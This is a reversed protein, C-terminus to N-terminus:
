RQRFDERACPIVADNTVIWDMKADREDSPIREAAQCAYAVGIREIWPSSTLFRDYYGAGYGLRNGETDFALMPVVAAEVERVDAALEHGIPEPVRFTSEVLVGPDDLLSLRLTITEREIIPVVVRKGDALLAEILPLTQVEPQKTCYVLVTRRPALLELLRECCARSMARREDAGLTFRSKRARDRLLRKQDDVASPTGIM